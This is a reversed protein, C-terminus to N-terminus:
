GHNAQSSCQCVVRKASPKRFYRTLEERLQLRARALRTKVAEATINLMEAAEAIAYGEIDRLIFVARLTPRLKRLSKKLIDRFETKSYCLEPNSMWDNVEGGVQLHSIEKQEGDWPEEPMTRLRRLLMFSENLTIRVLWTSFKANGRFRNLNQFAKLFATQVVEEANETSHTINQAIRLLKRDYKAVLEEFASIDGNRAAVVLPFDADPSYTMASNLEVTM